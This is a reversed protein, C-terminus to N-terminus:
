RRWIYVGRRYTALGADLHIAQYILLVVVLVVCFCLAGFLLGLIFSDEDKGILIGAVLGVLIAICTGITVM